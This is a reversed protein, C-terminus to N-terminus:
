RKFDMELRVEDNSSWDKGEQREETRTSAEEILYCTLRKKVSNETLKNFPFFFCFCNCPLNHSTAQSRLIIFNFFSLSYFFRFSIRLKEINILDVLFLLM